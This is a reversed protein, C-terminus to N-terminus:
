AKGDDATLVVGPTSGVVGVGDYVFRKSASDFTVGPPLAASNKTITLADSNPDTVYAGISVSSAVGQAFMVNPVTSWAPPLNAGPTAPPASDSGSAGGGGCGVLALTATTTTLVKLFARREASCATDM